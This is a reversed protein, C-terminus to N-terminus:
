GKGRDTDYNRWFKCLFEIKHQFGALTFISGYGDRDRVDCRLSKQGVTPPMTLTLTPKLM